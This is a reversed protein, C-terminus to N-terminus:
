KWERKLLVKLLGPKLYHWWIKNKFYTSITMNFSHSEDIFHYFWIEALMKRLYKSEEKSGNFGDVLAHNWRIFDLYIVKGSLPKYKFFQEHVELDRDTTKIGFQALVLEKIKSTSEIQKNIFKKSVQQDHARYDLLIEPLNAVKSVQIFRRWLEYDEAHIYNIDYELDHKDLVDKRMMTTPHAFPSYHIMEVRLQFDHLPHRIEFDASEKGESHFVFLASGCLGIEPHSEMFEVQKAIRTPHAIDDADMRAIYQGNALKIARNLTAILGVNQQNQLLRIREDQYEKLHTFSDDTSGDDIVLIEM